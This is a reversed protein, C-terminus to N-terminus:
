SKAVNGPKEIMNCRVVIERFDGFSLRGDANSDFCHIMDAMEKDTWTFDHTNAMRQIDRLGIDGNGAEDFQCFHVLLEDETMQMRSSNLKKRKRRGTVEQLYANGKRQNLTANIVQADSSQSPGNNVMDSVEASDKLSLAIAEMLADDDDIFDSSRLLKQTPVKKKSKSKTNKVKRGCSKSGGGGMFEDDDAAANEESSSSLEEEIGDPPRYEEDKFFKAKGKDKSQKKVSGMLSSAMKHLGLAEMRAKNEEIRHQRQKEYEPVVQKSGNIPTESDDSSSNEDSESDSPDHKHM